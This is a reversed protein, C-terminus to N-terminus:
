AFSILFGHIKMVVFAHRLVNSANGATDFVADVVVTFIVAGGLADVDARAGGAGAAVGDTRRKLILVPFLM